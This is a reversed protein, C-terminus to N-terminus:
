KTSQQAVKRLDAALQDQTKKVEGLERPVQTLMEAIHENTPKATAAVRIVVEGLRKAVATGVSEAQTRGSIAFCVHAVVPSHKSVTSRDFNSPDKV